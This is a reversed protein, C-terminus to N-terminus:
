CLILIHYHSLSLSITYSVNDMSLQTLLPAKLSITYAYVLSLGQMLHRLIRHSKGMCVPLHNSCLLHTKVSMPLPFLLHWSVSGNHGNSERMSFFSSSFYIFKVIWFIFNYPHPSYFNHHWVLLSLYSMLITLNFYFSIFYCNILYYLLLSLLIRLDLSFLLFM